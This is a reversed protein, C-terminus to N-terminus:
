KKKALSAELAKAVEESIDLSDDGYLLGSTSELGSRTKDLILTYGNKKGLEAFVQHLEKLIPAMVDKELKQLDLKADQQAMQFDRAKKQLELEKEEIKDKSWVTNKTEIEGKLTELEKQMKQFKEQFEAIKGTLTDRAARAGSTKELIVQMNVTAIKVAKDAAAASNGALNQLGFFAVLVLFTFWSMKKMM